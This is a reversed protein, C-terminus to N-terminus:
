VRAKGMATGIRTRPRGAGNDPQYQGDKLATGRQMQAEIEDVRQHILAKDQDFWEVPIEMRYATIEGGGERTGVVRAMPKGDRDMVHNYGAEKAMQIRGPSDNFWHRHYGPRQTNDLYQTQSGFARRPRGDILIEGDPGITVNAPLEAPIPLAPAHEPAAAAPAPAAQPIPPLNAVPSLPNPGRASRRARQPTATSAEAM